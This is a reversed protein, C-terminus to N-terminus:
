FGQEYFLVFKDLIITEYIQLVRMYKIFIILMSCSFHVIAFFGKAKGHKTKWSRKLFVEPQMKEM